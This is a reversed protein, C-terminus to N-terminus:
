WFCWYVCVWLAAYVGFWLRLSQYWPRATGAEYRSLSSPTWRFPEWQARAPPETILSVLVVGLM